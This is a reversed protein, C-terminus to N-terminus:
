VTPHVPKASKLLQRMEPNEDDEACNRPTDGDVDKQDPDAGADLLLKVVAVSGGIVAAELVNIGEKDAANPHAGAELLIKVCENNGKDAAMHLATQGNEDVENVNGSLIHQKLLEIEGLMAAHLITTEGALPDEPIGGTVLTSQRAGMSLNDSLDANNMNRESSHVSGTVRNIDDEDSFEVDEEDSYVIDEQDSMMEMMSDGGTATSASGTENGKEMFHEVVEIYKMMAFHRPMGDFKSWAEHKKWAVVNMRNPEDINIDGIHAQKYLGYLM